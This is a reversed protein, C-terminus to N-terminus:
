ELYEIKRTWEFLREGNIIKTQKIWNNKDDFIYEFEVKHTGREDTYILEIPFEHYDYSFVLNQNNDPYKPFTFTEKVKRQNEDYEYKKFSTISDNGDYYYFETLLNNEYISIEKKYLAPINNDKFDPNYSYQEIIRDQEDYVFERSIMDRGKETRQQRSGTKTKVWIFPSHNFIKIKRSKDDYEYLTGYDAGYEDYNKIEILNGISDYYNETKRIEEPYDSNYYEYESLLNSSNYKYKQTTFSSDASIDKVFSLNNNEDYEYVANSEQYSISKETKIKGFENYTFQSFRITDQSKDYWIEKLVRKDEDFEKYYNIYHVWYTNYWWNHFRSFTYEANMFGNHGYDGETSFLKRNQHNEKLFSLQERISKVKGYITDKQQSFSYSSVLLISLVIVYKKTM